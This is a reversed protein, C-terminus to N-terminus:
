ELIMWYLAHSKSQTSSIKNLLSVTSDHHILYGFISCSRLTLALAGNQM